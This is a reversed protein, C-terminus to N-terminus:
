SVLTLLITSHCYLIWRGLSYMKNGASFDTQSFAKEKEKRGAMCDDKVGNVCDSFVGLIRGCAEDVWGRGAGKVKTPYRQRPTPANTADVSISRPPPSTGGGPERQSSSPHPAKNCAAPQTGERCEPPHINVAGRSRASPM